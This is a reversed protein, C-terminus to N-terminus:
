SLLGGFIVCFLVSMKAAFFNREISVHGAYSSSCLNSYKIKGAPFLQCFICSFYFLKLLYYRLM